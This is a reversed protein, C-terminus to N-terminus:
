RQRGKWGEYRRGTRGGQYHGFYNPDTRGRSAKGGDEINMVAYEQNPTVRRSTRVHELIGELTDKAFDFREDELLAEIKAIMAVAERETQGLEDRKGPGESDALNLDSLKAM